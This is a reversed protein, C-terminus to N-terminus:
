LFLSETAEVWTFYLEPDDDYRKSLIDYTGPRLHGYKKLFTSQRMTKQDFIMQSSVTSISEM